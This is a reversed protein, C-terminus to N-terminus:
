DSNNYMGIVSSLLPSFDGKSNESLENIIFCLPTTVVLATLLAIILILMRLVCLGWPRARWPESLMNISVALGYEM